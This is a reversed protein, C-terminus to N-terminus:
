APHGPGARPPAAAPRFVLDGLVLATAVALGGSWLIDSAFHAGQVIRALGMLSGWAIAGAAAARGRRPRRPFLYALGILGFAMSAFGSPFSKGEAPPGPRWVPRYKQTGGFATVQLPRPRGWQPKVLHEPILWSGLVITLLIVAGPRWWARFRVLGLGLLLLVGGAVALAYTPWSGYQNVVRIVATQKLPWGGGAGPAFFLSSIWLDLGTGSLLVTGGALVALLAAYVWVRRAM